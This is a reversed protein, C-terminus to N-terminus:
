GVVFNGVSKSKIGHEQCYKHLSERFLKSVTMESNIDRIQEIMQKESSTIRVQVKIDRNEKKM